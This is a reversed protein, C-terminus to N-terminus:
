GRAWLLLARSLLLGRKARDGRGRAVYYKVVRIDFKLSNCAEYNELGQKETTEHIILRM